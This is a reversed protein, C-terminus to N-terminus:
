FVRQRSEILRARRSVAADVDSHSDWDDLMADGICRRTDRFRRTVQFADTETAAVELDFAFLKTMM